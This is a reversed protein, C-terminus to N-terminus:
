LFDQLLGGLDKLKRERMVARKPGAPLPKPATKLKKAPREAYAKVRRLCVTRYFQRSSARLVKHTRQGVQLSFIRADLPFSTQEADDIELTKQYISHLTKPVEDMDVVAWGELEFGAVADVPLVSCHNLVLFQLAPFDHFYRLAARSIRHQFQLMLVRLNAFGKSNQALESWSRVIRDDLNVMPVEGEEQVGEYLMPTAIELAVLNPINALGVLDPTRVQTAALTLTAGWSLSECKVLGLYDQISMLPSEVKMARHPAVKRFEEPYATAFLKWAYATQKKCKGLCDWLYKAVRWHVSKFLEPRLNRQDSLAQRMAAHRLTPAGIANTEEWGEPLFPTEHVWSAGKSPALSIEKSSEMYVQGSGRDVVGCIHM